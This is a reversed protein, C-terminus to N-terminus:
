FVMRGTTFGVIGSMRWVFGTKKWKAVGGSSHDGNWYMGRAGAYELLVQNAEQIVSALAAKFDLAKRKWAASTGGSPM